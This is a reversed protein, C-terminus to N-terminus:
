GGTERPVDDPGGPVTFVAIGDEGGHWVVSRGLERVVDGWRSGAPPDSILITGGPRAFVLAGDLTSAPPGFSRATVVDYRRHHAPDAGLVGVDATIVRVRGSWGLRTASRRLTDTRKERRDVLTVALSPRDWAIVLGPLGGGSGLDVVSTASAPLVRVFRRSHAVADELTTPGIAGVRQHEGLVALLPADDPM